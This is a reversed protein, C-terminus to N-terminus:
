RVRLDLASRDPALSNSSLRALRLVAIDDPTMADEEDDVMEVIMDDEDPVYVCGM